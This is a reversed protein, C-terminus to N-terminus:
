IYLIYITFFLLFSFQFSYHTDLFVPLTYSTFSYVKQKQKFSLGSGLAAESMNSTQEHLDIYIYIYIIKKFFLEIKISKERGFM